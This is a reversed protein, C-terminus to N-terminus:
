PALEPCRPDSESACRAAGACSLSTQASLVTGGGGVSVAGNGHAGEEAGSVRRRLGFGDGGAAYAHINVAGDMAAPNLSWSCPTNRSERSLTRDPTSNSNYVDRSASIRGLAGERHDHM